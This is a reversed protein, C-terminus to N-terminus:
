ATQCGQTYGRLYADRQDGFVEAADRGQEESVTFWPTRGGVVARVFEGARCVPDGDRVFVSATYALMSAGGSADTALANAARQNWAVVGPVAATPEMCVKVAEEFVPCEDGAVAADNMVFGIGGDAGAHDEAWWQAVTIADAAFDGSAGAGEGPTHVAAAAVSVVADDTVNAEPTPAEGRNCGAMSVVAAFALATTLIKKLDM